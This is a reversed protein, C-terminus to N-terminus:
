GERYIIITECKSANRIFWWLLKLFSPLVILYSDEEDCCVSYQVFYENM